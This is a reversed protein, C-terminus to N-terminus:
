AGGSLLIISLVVGLLLALVLIRPHLLAGTLRLRPPEKSPELERRASRHSQRSGEWTVLPRDDMGPGKEADTRPMAGSLASVFAWHPSGVTSTASSM